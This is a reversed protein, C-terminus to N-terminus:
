PAIMEWQIPSGRKGEVCFRFLNDQEKCEVQLGNVFCLLSGKNNHQPTHIAFSFKEDCVPVYYGRCADPRCAIGILPTHLVFSDFPLRPTIHITNGMPTIGALKIIDLLPGAHYNANMIPFDTMPTVAHFYSEGPRKHYHANFADPGSWIGYWINPYTEARQKMSNRIFCDWGARPDIHSLVWATWANVAAWVGGNTDADPELLLGRMPPWLATAGAPQGKLCHEEISHLLKSQEEENLLGALTPFAQCDLFLRDVGLQQDKAGTYGRAWWRGTWLSRAAKAQTQAVAQLQAAFEPAHELLVEALTPLAFAALGANLLSEGHRITALKRKSFAVLADNWDGTGCRFLGHKGTGVTTLLHDLAAQLHELGTGVRGSSQPHFPIIEELLSFDRLAGFYEAAEWLLFLDLDSSQAHIGAGSQKGYGIHAYPLAGTQADQSLMSFRLQERALDPRLYILPLTFLAFDRHAGSAGHLMSYASGQDVVRSNSFERRMANAQLYYSHWQLERSIWPTEPVLFDIHARPLPDAIAQRIAAIEEKLSDPSAYGYLHRLTKTEGPALRLAYRCALMAGERACRNHVLTHDAAGSMGPLEACSGDGFFARADTIFYRLVDEDLAALFVAHPHYDGWTSATRSPTKDPRKMRWELWVTAGKSDTHANQIFHRNFFRRWLRALRGLGYTMIPFPRLVHLNVGWYEVLTIEQEQDGDHAISVSSLLAPVDGPPAEVREVIRWGEFQTEKEVYGIGFYRRQKAERPLHSWRTDWTKGSAHVFHFGGAFQNRGPEWHNLYKGCRDWDMAEVYGENHALATIRDNGVAHWHDTSMGTSVCYAARPDQAHDLTYEYRPLGGDDDNWCGFAGGDSDGPPNWPPAKKTFFSQFATNIHIDFNDTPM